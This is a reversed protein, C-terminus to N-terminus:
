IGIARILERARDPLPRPRAHLQGTPRDLTVTVGADELAALVEAVSM